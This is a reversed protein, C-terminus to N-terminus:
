RRRAGDRGGSRGGRGGDRGGRGGDRGGRGGDRGGRGGDRGGRRDRGGGRRDDDRSRRPRRDDGGEERRARARELGRERPHREEASQFTVPLTNRERLAAVLEAQTLSEGPIVTVGHGLRDLDGGSSGATAAKLHAAATDALGNWVHHGQGIRTEIADIRPLAYVQDVLASELDRHYPHGAMVIGKFDKIREAVADFSWLRPGPSWKAGFFDADAVEPILILSGKELALEVGAFAWLDQAEVAKIYAETRDTRNGDTIVVGELQADDIRQALAEPSLDGPNVHPDILM